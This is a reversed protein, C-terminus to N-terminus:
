PSIESPQWSRGGARWGRDGALMTASNPMLGSARAPSNGSGFPAAREELAAAGVVVGPALLGGALDIQFDAANQVFGLLRGAGEQDAVAGGKVGDGPEEHLAFRDVRGLQM